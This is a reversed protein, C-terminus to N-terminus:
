TVIVVVGLKKDMNSLHFYYLRCNGVRLAKCHAEDPRGPEGVTSIPLVELNVAAM